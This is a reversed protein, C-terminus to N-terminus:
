VKRWEQSYCSLQIKFHQTNESPIYQTFPIATYTADKTGRTQVCYICQAESINLIGMAVNSHSTFDAENQEKFIYKKQGTELRHPARLFKYTGEEDGKEMICWYSLHLRLPRSLTVLDMNLYIFVSAPKYGASFVFPGHLIIGYRVSAEEEVAGAPVELVADGSGLTFTGGEPTITFQKIGFPIYCLTALTKEVDIFLFWNCNCVFVCM